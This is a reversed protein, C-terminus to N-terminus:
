MELAVHIMEDGFHLVVLGNKNKEVMFRPDHDYSLKPMM